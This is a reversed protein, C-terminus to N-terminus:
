GDSVKEAFIVVYFPIDGSSSDCVVNVYIPDANVSSVPIAYNQWGFAQVGGQFGVVAPVFGLNHKYKVRYIGDASSYCDNKMNFVKVESIKMGGLFQTNVVYDVDRAYKIPAGNTIKIGRAM